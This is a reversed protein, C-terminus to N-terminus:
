GRWWRRVVRYGATGELAVCARFGRPVRVDRVLFPGPLATDPRAVVVGGPGRVSLAM